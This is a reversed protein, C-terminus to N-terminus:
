DSKKNFFHAGVFDQKAMNHEGIADIGGPVGLQATIAKRHHKM